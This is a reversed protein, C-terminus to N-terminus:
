VSRMGHSERVSVKIPLLVQREIASAGPCLGAVYITTRVNLDFRKPKVLLGVPGPYFYGSTLLDRMARM